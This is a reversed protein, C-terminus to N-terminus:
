IVTDSVSESIAGTSTDYSDNTIKRLTVNGGLKNLIKASAKKLSSSLAM